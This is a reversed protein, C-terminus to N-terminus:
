TASQCPSFIMGIHSILTYIANIMEYNKTWAYVPWHLSRMTANSANLGDVNCVNSLMALGSLGSIYIPLKSSQYM